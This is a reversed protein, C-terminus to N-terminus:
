SPGGTGGMPKADPRLGRLKREASDLSTKVERKLEEWNAATANGLRDVNREVARRADRAEAVAKVRLETADDGLDSELQKLERDMAELRERVEARFEDRRDWSSERVDDTADDAADKTDEAAEETADGVDRAGEGVADGTEEAANDIGEAANDARSDTDQRERDGCAMVFAVMLAAAACTMARM